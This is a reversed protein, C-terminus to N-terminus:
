ILRVGDNFKQKIYQKAEAPIDGRVILNSITVPGTGRCISTCDARPESVTVGNLTLQNEFQEVSYSDKTIEWMVIGHQGMYEWAPSDNGYTNVDIQKSALTDSLKNLRDNFYRDAYYGGVASAMGVSLGLAGLGVPSIGTLAGMGAGQVGSSGAGIVGSVLNKEAEIKRQERVADRQGTILYDSWSSQNVPVTPMPIRCYMGKRKAKQLHESDYLSDMLFYCELAMELPTWDYRYAIYQFGVKLPIQFTLDGNFDGLVYNNIETAETYGIGTTIFDGILSFEGVQIKVGAFDTDGVPTAKLNDYYVTYQVQNGELAVEAGYPCSPSVYAGVVASASIGLKGLVPGVDSGYGFIQGIDTTLGGIGNRANVIRYQTTVGLIPVSMPYCIVRIRTATNYEQTYLITVWYLPVQEQGIQLAGPPVIITEKTPSNYIYPIDQIPRGEKEGLEKSKTTVMGYGFEALRLWTRWLDIRWSIDVMPNEENDSAVSVKDVWGYYVSQQPGEKTNNVITLKIYCYSRANFYFEPIRVQDFIRDRSPHVDEYTTGDEDDLELNNYSPVEVCGETFGPDNYFTATFQM